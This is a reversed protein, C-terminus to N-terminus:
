AKLLTSGPGFRSAAGYARAGLRSYTQVQDTPFFVALARQTSASMQATLAQLDTLGRQFEQLKELVLPPPAAGRGLVQALRPQVQTMTRALESCRQSFEDASGSSISQQAAEQTARLQACLANLQTLCTKWDIPANM